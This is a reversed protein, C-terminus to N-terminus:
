SPIKDKSYYPM